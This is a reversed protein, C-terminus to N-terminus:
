HGEGLLIFSDLWDRRITDILRECFSNAKPCVVQTKMAVVDFSSLAVDLDRSCM